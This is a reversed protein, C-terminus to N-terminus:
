KEIMGLVVKETKSFYKGERTKKIKEFQKKIKGNEYQAPIEPHVYYKECVTKTNGLAKATTKYAENRKKKNEEPNESYDLEMLGEFFLNTGSWTRFDKASFESSSIKRIYENVMGSDIRHKKGTEDYYQFLEYGPIEECQMVLKVLKKNKLTIRHQKGKKGLFEFKLGNKFANVHRDRLTSLGYSSNEIAYHNNGIRIHTEEMLRVVLALVKEKPLGRLELDKTVKERIKPLHKGFFHLHSFKSQKQMEVWRPHYRYVKRNKTDRGVVQLHGNEMNCIRVEKWAPPIVLKEIRQLKKKGTLKKGNLTYYFGKGKRHREICLAQDSVHILNIKKDIPVKKESTESPKEPVPSM